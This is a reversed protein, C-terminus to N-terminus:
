GIKYVGKKDKWIRFNDVYFDGSKEFEVIAAGWNTKTSVPSYEPRLECLCGTSWAAIQDGDLNSEQHESTAHHHGVLINSKGRLFAGRAANVPNFFGGGFEHGHLINLKGAKIIHADIFTIDYKDFHLFQPFGLGNGYMEEMAKAIEGGKTWLYHSWRNEHNGLRYYIPIGKFQWRLWALFERGRKIEEVTDPKQGIKLFRSKAWFDLIDGNLLISDVGKEKFYHCAKAIVHPEHYPVHVDSLVGLKGTPLIFPKKEKIESTPMSPQTEGTNRDRITFRQKMTTGKHKGLYGRMLVRIREIEKENYDILQAHDKIFNRALTKIGLPKVERNLQELHEAIYAEILRGQNSQKKM